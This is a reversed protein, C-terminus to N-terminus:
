IDEDSFVDLLVSSLQDTESIFSYPTNEIYEIVDCVKEAGAESLKHEMDVHFIRKAKGYDGYYGLLNDENGALTDRDGFIICTHYRDEGDDLSLRTFIHDRMRFIKEMFEDTLEPNGAPDEKRLKELNEPLAPNVLIKFGPFDQMAYFAGMSSAVVYDYGKKIYERLLETMKEPNTIPFDPADLKYEIGRKDLVERILMSSHGNGSGLYGHVYLIKMM